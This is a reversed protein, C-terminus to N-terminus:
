CFDSTYQNGSFRQQKPALNNSISLSTLHYLLTVWLYLVIPWNEESTRVFANFRYPVQSQPIISRPEFIVEKLHYICPFLLKITIFLWCWSRVWIIQPCRLHYLYNFYKSLTDFTQICTRYHCAHFNVGEKFKNFLNYVGGYTGPVTWHVVTFLVSLVINRWLVWMTIMTQLCPATTDTTQCFLVTLRIIFAM